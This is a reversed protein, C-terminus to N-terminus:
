KSFGYYDKECTARYNSWDHKWNPQYPVIEESALHEQVLKFKNIVQEIIDDNREVPFIM